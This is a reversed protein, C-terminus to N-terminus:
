SSYQIPDFKKNMFEIGTVCAMLARRSFRISSQVEIERKIKEYEFKMESLDSRLTYNKSLEYGKKQLSQLKILIDKKQEERKM